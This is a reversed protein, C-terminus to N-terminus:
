NGTADVIGAETSKLVNIGLSAASMSQINTHIKNTSASDAGVHLSFSLDDTVYSQTKNVYDAIDTTTVATQGESDSYLSGSTYVGFDNFYKRLGVGSVANGEGDYLQAESQDAKAQIGTYAGVESLFAFGDAAEKFSVAGNTVEVNKLYADLSENAKVLVVQNNTKDLVYTDNTAIIM